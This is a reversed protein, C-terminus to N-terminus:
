EDIMAQYEADTMLQNLASVDDAKIRFLWTAYPKENVQEPEDALSANVDVVEGSVPSHLDSATKVSEV